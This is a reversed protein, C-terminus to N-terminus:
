RSRNFAALAVTTVLVLALDEAYTARLWKFWLEEVFFHWTLWVWVTGLAVRWAPSRLLHWWHESVTDGRRRNSAGILEVVLIFGLGLVYLATFLPQLPAEMM